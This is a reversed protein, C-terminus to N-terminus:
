VAVATPAHDRSPRPKHRDRVRYARFGMLMPGKDLGATMRRLLKHDHEDQYPKLDLDRPVKTVRADGIRKVYMRM